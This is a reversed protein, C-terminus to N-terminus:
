SRSATVDAPPGVARRLAPYGVGLTLARAVVYGVFALWLGRNGAAPVLAWSLGLFVVLAAASADRMARTRTAGIFVGDLQFAPASVAVYLAALGLHAGAVARVAPLDTLAAVAAPGALAIGASLALGALLALESTRRVARDFAARDRAGLARGVLSETAFAFGDLVFASFSVLQLLLHNAALTADGFRAGENTFWGFGALLLLTRAMIDLQARAMGGIGARDFLAAREVWPGVEGGAARRRRLLDFVLWGGLLLGCWEAIATGLGVGVAGLGLLGALLVDLAINLGNVGAQLVLLRRSRGLGVLAGVLAYTALAAPAGWIRARLYAAAQAEVAPTGDLLALAAWAVPGQAAVLGVGLLAGVLLPRAVALRVGPEDGAGDAQAVFGTTAMRLFGFGWYVFSFVLAGLAIAGLAEVSGTHGIVASDALGLLPASANALVIPWVTALVARRSPSDPAIARM